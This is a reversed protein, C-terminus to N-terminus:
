RVMGALRRPILSAFLFITADRVKGRVDSLESNHRENSAYVQTIKKIIATRGDGKTWSISNISMGKRKVEMRKKWRQRTYEGDYETQRAEMSPTEKREVM